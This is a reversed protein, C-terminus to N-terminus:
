RAALVSLHVCADELVLASGVNGQFEARYEKGEGVGAGEEWAATRSEDVLRQVQDSGIAAAASEAELADLTAGSLLREWVKQCTEPKDFLDVSVVKPGVGIAVGLAGDHYKVAERYATLKAAHAEYTDAMAATPSQAGLAVQQRRVEKWVEGQDSCHGRKEKVARTVSAKLAYRLPSGGMMKAAAFHPSVYRWRGQEVCSVPVHTRTKAAVLISTNLVRNQKAGRLEEGELFLVRIDGRNEVVLDPVHGEAGVETVTVAADAIAEDALRYDVPRPAEGFLPFVSLSEYRVAEGVRITPLQM